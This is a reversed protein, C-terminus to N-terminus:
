AGVPSLVSEPDTEFAVPKSEHRACHHILVVSAHPIHLARMAHSRTTNRRAFLYNPGDIAIEVCDLVPHNLPGVRFFGDNDSAACLRGITSNEDLVILYNM